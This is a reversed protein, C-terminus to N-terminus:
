AEIEENAPPRPTAFLSVQAERMAEALGPDFPIPATVGPKAVPSPPPSSSFPSYEMGPTGYPSNGGPYMVGPWPSFTGPGSQAGDPPMTAAESWLLPGSTPESSSALSRQRRVVLVGACLALAILGAGSLMIPWLLNVRSAFNTTQVPATNQKTAPSATKTPASTPATTPNLDVTPTPVAVLTVGEVHFTTVASLVPPSGGGAVGTVTYSGTSARAPVTIIQTFAGAGNSVVSGLSISPGGNASRWTLSVSTAGPLFNTGFITTQKGAQPTGPGVFLHPSSASLVQYSGLQFTFSGTSGCVGFTGTGTSTPWRFWGSFAGGRAVGAQGGSVLNCTRGDITYGLDIRTGDSFFLGNGSVTIVAGVPGRTPSVTFANKSPTLQLAFAQDPSALAIIALLPVFLGALLVCRWFHSHLFNRTRRPGSLCEMM